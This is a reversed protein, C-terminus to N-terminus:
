FGKFKIPIFYFVIFSLPQLNKVKIYNENYSKKGYGWV